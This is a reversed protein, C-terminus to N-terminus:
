KIGKFRNGKSRNISKPLIQLNWPVHLGSVNKGQLPVIHDVELPDNPDSLWQLDKADVYFQEMENLNEKTLWKPARQLKVAHRKVNISKIKGPNNKKTNLWPFREPNRIPRIGLGIQQTPEKQILDKGNLSTFKKALNVGHLLDM